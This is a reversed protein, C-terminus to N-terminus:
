VGPWSGFHFEIRFLNFAIPDALRTISDYPQCFTGFLAGKLRHSGNPVALLEGGEWFPRARSAVGLEYGRVYNREGTSDEFQSSRTSVM